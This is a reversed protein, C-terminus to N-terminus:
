DEEKAFSGDPQEVLDVAEADDGFIDSEVLTEPIRGELVEGIFQEIEKAMPTYIAVEAPAVYGMLKAHDMIIERAKTVAVLHEPDEPDKAKQMVGFLLTQLNESAMRRMFDQSEDTALGAELAQEVAILASRPNPYGLTEAIHDWSYNDRRLALAANAKRQRARNIGSDGQPRDSSVGTPHTSDQILTM